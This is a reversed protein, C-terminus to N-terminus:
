SPDQDDKKEIKAQTEDEKLGKKFSSIGKGIDEMLRPIRGAGFLVLIVLIVVLIHGMSIGM